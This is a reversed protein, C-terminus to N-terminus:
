WSKIMDDVFKLLADEIKQIDVDATSSIEKNDEIYKMQVTNFVPYRSDM